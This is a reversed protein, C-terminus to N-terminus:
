LNYGSEGHQTWDLGQEEEEHSVRLGVLADVIKLLIWTGVVSYVITAGVGVAQTVLQKPNGYFLGDAGGSNVAVTCFVGTLLAGVTGGIGHIGFADLTDDFGFKNKITIGFCCITGGLLGICLAGVPTVFGAAPTIAVLGAVCGSAAGLVSPKGRQLWEVGAWALTAAASAIHTNVFATGALGGAALASGGNFGFWGFWLIGAGLITLTMNHPELKRDGRRGGLVVAGVLASVGSSIHVVTGGAFDLAGLNRIWGGVGWVWHCIPDYVLTAWLLSFLLMASFKIREAVAGFILAPTIIAFMMQYIMFVNHPITAAYDPNPEATVGSLAFWKLSGIVSKIDPGFSLSYGWLMWQVTILGLLIFSHMMTGLVNKRHVMGSYFLALGPTMLMVLAAAALMWATDGTDIQAASSGEALAASATLFMLVCQLGLKCRKMMQIRGNTPLEPPSEVAPSKLNLGINHQGCIRMLTLTVAHVRAFNDELQQHRPGPAVLVSVIQEIFAGWHLARKHLFKEVATEPL